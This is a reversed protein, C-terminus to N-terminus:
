ENRLLFRLIGQWMQFFRDCEVDIVFHRPVPERLNLHSQAICGLLLLGKGLKLAQSGLLRALLLSCSFQKRPRLDGLLLQVGRHRLSFDSDPHTFPTSVCKPSLSRFLTTYPFLTSRPPRRIM